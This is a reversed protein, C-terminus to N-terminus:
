EDDRVADPKDEADEAASESGRLQQWIIMFAAFVLGLLRGIMRLTLHLLAGLPGEGALFAIALGIILVISLVFAIIIIPWMWWPPTCTGSDACDEDSPDEQLAVTAHAPGGGEVDGAVVPVVGGGDPPPLLAAAGFLMAATCIIITLRVM